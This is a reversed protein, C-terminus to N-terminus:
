STRPRNEYGYLRDIYQPMLVRWTHDSALHGPRVYDFRASELCDLLLRIADEVKRGTKEAFLAIRRAAECFREYETSPNKLRGYHERGLFRKAFADAVQRTLEPNVSRTKLPRGKLDKTQWWLKKGKRHAALVREAWSDLSAYALNKGEFLHEGRECVQFYLKMQTILKKLGVQQIAERLLTMTAEDRRKEEPFPRNRSEGQNNARVVYAHQNWTCILKDVSVKVIEPMEIEESASSVPPAEQEEQKGALDLEKPPLLKFNFSVAEGAVLAELEELSLRFSRVRSVL